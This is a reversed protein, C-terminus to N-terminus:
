FTATVTVTGTAGSAPLPELTVTFSGGPDPWDSYMGTPVSGGTSTISLTFTGQDPVPPKQFFQAWSDGNSADVVSGANLVGSSSANSYTGTQLSTQDLNVLLAIVSGNPSAQVAVAVKGATNGTIAAAVLCSSTATFSGTATLSCTGPPTNGGTSSGCAAGVLGLVLGAVAAARNMDM